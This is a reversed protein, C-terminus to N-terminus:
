ERPSCLRGWRSAAARSRDEPPRSPPANREARRACHMWSSPQAQAHTQSKGPAPFCGLYGGYSAKTQRWLLGDRTSNAAAPRGRPVPERCARAGRAREPVPHRGALTGTERAPWHRSGDALRELAGRSSRRSEAFPERDSGKHFGDCLGSGPIRVAQLRRTGLVRRVFGYNDPCCDIVSNSNKSVIRVM